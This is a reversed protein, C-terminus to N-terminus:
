CRGFCFIISVM